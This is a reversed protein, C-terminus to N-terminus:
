VMTELDGEGGFPKAGGLLEYLIGGPSFVNPRRDLSSVQGRAQESSTYGPTGVVQGTLTAPAVKKERAM